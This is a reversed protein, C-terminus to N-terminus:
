RNGPEDERGTGSRRRLLEDPKNRRESLEQEDLLKELEERTQASRLAIGDCLSVEKRLEKLEASITNRRAKIEQTAAADGHRSLRQIDNNLGKREETLQAIRSTASSRREMLQDITEINNGALFRTQQDLRDLKAVDERLFFSVRKV